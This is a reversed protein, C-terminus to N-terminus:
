LTDLPVNFGVVISSSSSSSTSSSFNLSVYTANPQVYIHYFEVSVVCFVVVELRRSLAECEPFFRDFKWQREVDNEM